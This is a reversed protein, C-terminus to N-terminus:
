YVASFIKFTGVRSQCSSVRRVLASRQDDLPHPECGAADRDFAGEHRRLERLQGGLVLHEDGGKHTSV